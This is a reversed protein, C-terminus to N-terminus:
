ISLESSANNRKSMGTSIFTRLADRLSNGAIQTRLFVDLEWSGSRLELTTKYLFSAKAITSRRNDAGNGPCQYFDVRCMVLTLNIEKM